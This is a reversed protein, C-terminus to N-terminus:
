KRAPVSEPHYGEASFTLREGHQVVEKGKTFTIQYRTKGIHSVKVRFPKMFATWEESLERCIAEPSDDDVEVLAPLMGGFDWGLPLDWISLYM